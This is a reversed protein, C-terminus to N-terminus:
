YMPTEHAESTTLQIKFVSGKILIVVGAPYRRKPGMSLFIISKEVEAHALLVPAALWAKSRRTSRM